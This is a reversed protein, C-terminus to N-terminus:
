LAAAWPRRIRPVATLILGAMFGIAGDALWGAVGLEAAAFPATPAYALQVSYTGAVAGAMGACITGISVWRVLLPWSRISAAYATVNKDDCTDSLVTTVATRSPLM